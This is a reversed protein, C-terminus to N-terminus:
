GGKASRLKARVQDVVSSKRRWIVGLFRLSFMLKWPKTLFLEASFASSIVRWRRWKGPQNIVFYRGSVGLTQIGYPYNFAFWFAQSSTHIVCDGPDMNVLGVGTKANLQLCLKLDTIYLTIQPLFRLLLRGYARRYALLRASATEILQEVPVSDQSKLPLDPIQSFARRYALIAQESGNFGHTIDFEDGPYMVSLSQDPLASVVHDITNINANMFSNEQHSFYVFSAIPVTTGPRLVETMESIGVLKEAARSSLAQNHDPNGNFGAYSFQTMLVNVQGLDKRMRNLDNKVPDCDNVNLVCQGSKSKFAMTSDMSGVQFSYVSLSDSISVLKRHPLEVINQFGLEKFADVMKPTWLRQFLLTVRRKFEDPLDSLTPLNFHDPHEHSVWVHTIRDLKSTDFRPDPHLRWSENFVDSHLWPDTWICTDKESLIFSAHGVFEIQM